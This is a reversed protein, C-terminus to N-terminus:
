EQGEEEVALLTVTPYRQSKRWDPGPYPEVWAIINGLAAALDYGPDCMFTRMPDAVFIETFVVQWTWRALDPDTSLAGLLRRGLVGSAVQTGEVAFEFRSWAARRGVADHPLM